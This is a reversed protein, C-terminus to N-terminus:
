TVRPQEKSQIRLASSCRLTSGLASNAHSHPQLGLSPRLKAPWAKDKETHTLWPRENQSM